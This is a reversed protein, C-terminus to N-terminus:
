VNVVAFNEGMQELVLALMFLHSTFCNKLRSLLRM